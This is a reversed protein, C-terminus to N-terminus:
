DHDEFRSHRVFKIICTNVLRPEVPFHSNKYIVKLAFCLPERLKEVIDKECVCERELCYM